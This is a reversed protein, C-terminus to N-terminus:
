RSPWKPGDYDQVFDQIMQLSKVDQDVVYVLLNNNDLKFPLYFLRHYVDDYCSSENLLLLLFTLSDLFSTLKLNLFRKCRSVNVGLDDELACHCIINFSSALNAQRNNSNHEKM